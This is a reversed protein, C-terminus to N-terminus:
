SMVAGKPTVVKRLRRHSSVLRVELTVQSSKRACVREVQSSAVEVGWEQNDLM